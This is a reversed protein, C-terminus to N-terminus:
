GFRSRVDTLSYAHIRQKPMALIHEIQERLAAFPQEYETGVIDAECASLQRSIEKLSHMANSICQHPPPKPTFFEPEHKPKNLNWPRPAIKHRPTRRETPWTWGLIMRIQQIHSLPVNSGPRLATQIATNVSAAIRATDATTLQTVHTLKTLADDNIDQGFLWTRRATILECRDWDRFSKMARLYVRFQRWRDLRSPITALWGSSRVRSGISDATLNTWEPIRATVRDCVTQNRQQRKSTGNEVLYRLLEHLVITLANSSNWDHLHTEAM